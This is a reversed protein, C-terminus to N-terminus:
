WINQKCAEVRKTRNRKYLLQKFGLNLKIALEEEPDYEYKFNSIIKHEPNFTMIVNGLNISTLLQANFPLRCSIGWGFYIFVTHFHIFDPNLNRFSHINLGLSIFGRYFPTLVSIDGGWNQGWYNHFSNKNINFDGTIGIELSRYLNHNDAYSISYLLFLLIITKYM